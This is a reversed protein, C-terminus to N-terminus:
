GEVRSAAQKVQEPNIRYVEYAEVEASWMKMSKKLNSVKGFFAQGRHNTFFSGNLKHIAVFM